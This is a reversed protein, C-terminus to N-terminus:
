LVFPLHSRLEEPTIHTLDKPIEGALLHATESSIEQRLLGLFHPSAAVYIKKVKGTNIAAQLHNALEKAFLAFEVKKPSPSEYAHRTPMMSENTRGPRDSVLEHASLRSAPHELYAIEKLNNNNRAEFIRALTSNATLIWINAM